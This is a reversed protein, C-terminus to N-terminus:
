RLQPSGFTVGTVNTWQFRISEINKMAYFLPYECLRLVVIGHTDDLFKVDGRLSLGPDIKNIDQGSYFRFDLRPKKISDFIRKQGQLNDSEVPIFLYRFKWPDLKQGVYDWGEAPSTGTHPFVITEGTQARLLNDFSIAESPLPAQLFDDEVFRTDKEWHYVAIKAPSVEGNETQCIPSHTLPRVGYMQIDTNKMEPFHMQLAFSIKAPTVFAGKRVGPLSSLLLHTKKRQAFEPAIQEAFATRVTGWMRGAYEYSAQDTRSAIACPIILAMTAVALTITSFKKKPIEYLLTIIFALGLSPAFLFRINQHSPTIFRIFAFVPMILIFIVGLSFITHRRYRPLRFFVAALFAVILAGGLRYLNILHQRTIGHWTSFEKSILFRWVTEWLKKLDGPRPVFAYNGSSGSEAFIQGIVQFRLLFYLCFVLFLGVYPAFFTKKNTRWVQWFFCIDTLVLLPAMLVGNEKSGIAWAALLTFLILKITNPKNRYSFFILLGWLLGNLSLLDTRGAIWTVTEVSFPNLITIIGAFLPALSYKFIKGALLAISVALLAFLIINTLHFFAPNNNSIHKDTWFSINTIPRFFSTGGISTQALTLVPNETNEARAVHELFDYDDALFGINVSPYFWALTFVILVAIQVWLGSTKKDKLTVIPNQEEQKTM